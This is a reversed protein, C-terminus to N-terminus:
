QQNNKGQKKTSNGSISKADDKKPKEVISVEKQEVAPKPLVEKKMIQIISPNIDEVLVSQTSCKQVAITVCMAIVAVVVAWRSWKTQKKAEKLSKIATKSQIRAEDLSEIAKKSQTRAEELSNIAIKSQARAEDLQLDEVTKFGNDVFDRLTQGAIVRYTMTKRLVSETKPDIEVTVKIFKNEQIINEGLVGIDPLSNNNDEIYYILGEKELYELLFAIEIVEDKINKIEDPTVEERRRYFILQKSNLVYAVGHSIFFEYFLNAAIYFAGPEANDCLKKIYKKEIDTFRRM